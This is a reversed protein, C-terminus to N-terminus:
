LDPEVTVGNHCVRAVIKEDLVRFLDFSCLLEVM